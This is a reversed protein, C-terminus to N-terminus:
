TCRLAKASRSQFNKLKKKSTNIFMFIIAAAQTAKQLALAKAATDGEQLTAAAAKSPTVKSLVQEGSIV